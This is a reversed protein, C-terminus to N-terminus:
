EANREIRKVTGFGRSVSKGIGLYDPIEFNVSFTGLFAVMPNGVLQIKKRVRELHLKVILEQSVVYGFSKCMSLINGILVRALKLDREERPLVRIRKYNASNLPLWPDMFEYTYSRSAQEFRHTQHQMHKEKIVFGKRGLELHDLNKELFAVEEIGEEIGIIKINGDTTKYQVRPYVYLCKKEGLHNHLLLNTPFKSGVFGRVKGAHTRVPSDCRINLYCTNLLM